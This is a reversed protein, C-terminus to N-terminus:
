PSVSPTSPPVLSYVSVSMRVSLACARARVCVWALACARASVCANFQCGTFPDRATQTTEDNFSSGWFMTVACVWVCDCVCACVCVKVCASVSVCVCVSVCASLFVCLCACVRESQRFFGCACTRARVHIGAHTRACTHPKTHTRAVLTNPHPDSPTRTARVRDTHAHARHQTHATARTRPHAAADMRIHPTWTRTRTRAHACMQTRACTRTHAHARKDTCANTHAHSHPRATEDALTKARTNPMHPCVRAHAARSHTRRPASHASHPCATNM